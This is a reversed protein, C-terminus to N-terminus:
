LVREITKMKNILTRTIIKDVTGGTIYHIFCTKLQGIRHIRKLAQNNDGPVWSCDNFVLHNAAVLNVGTSCSGITAVLVRPKGEDSAEFRTISDRRDDTNTKGTIIFADSRERICEYIEESSAVHESFVVLRSIGSEILGLVYEGTFKAKAKANGAKITSEAIVGKKTYEEWVKKLGENEVYKVEVEKTIIEPLDLVDEAKRRIMRGVLFGKLEEINKQGEFKLVIRSGINIQRPNTFHYCFLYYSKYKATIKNTVKDSLALMLLLSHLEPIRNKIPTGTLGLFYKPKSNSLHSYMLKTREADMSKCYHFEDAVVFDVMNFIDGLFKLQTYSAVIIECSNPFLKKPNFSVVEADIFKECEALWNWVLYTPCIILAKKGSMVIAKLAQLSKGLGMEDANITYFNSLAFNAGEIQYDHFEINPKLKM